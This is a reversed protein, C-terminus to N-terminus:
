RRKSRDRLAALAAFASRAAADAADNHSRLVAPADAAHPYPDLALSLEEVAIEGLDLLEGNLPEPEEDDPSVIIEDGTEDAGLVFYREIPVELRAPVPELTVVCRQTADAEITGRVILVGDRPGKEIRGQFVLAALSLLELRRAVARCEAPTAELSFAHGGTAPMHRLRFLRSFELEDALRQDKQRGRIPDPSGQV